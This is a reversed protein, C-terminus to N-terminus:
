DNLVKHFGEIKIPIEDENFFINGSDEITLADGSKTTIPYRITFHVREINEITDEILKHMAQHHEFRNQDPILELYKFYTLKENPEFGLRKKWEKSLIFDQTVIDYDWSGGNTSDISFEFNNKQEM